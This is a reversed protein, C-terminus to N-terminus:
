STMTESITTYRPAQMQANRTEWAPLHGLKLDRTICVLAAAKGGKPCTTCRERFSWCYQRTQSAMGHKWKLSCWCYPNSVTECHSKGAQQYFHKHLQANKEKCLGPNLDKEAMGKEVQDNNM